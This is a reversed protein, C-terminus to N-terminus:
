EVSSKFLKIIPQFSEFFVEGVLEQNIEKFEIIKNFGNVLELDSGSGLSLNSSDWYSASFKIKCDVLEVKFSYCEMALSYSIRLEEGKNIVEIKYKSLEHEIDKLAPLIERKLLDAYLEPCQSVIRHNLEVELKDKWNM